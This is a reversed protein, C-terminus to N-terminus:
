IHILSLDDDISNGRMEGPNIWMRGALDPHSYDVGTDVVAVVVASTSPKAMAWAGLFKVDAGSTGSSGNVGQGTNQLGWLSSFRPDSPPLSGAIWRLYNPEASEVSPDLMLEATLEMTTKNKGRVLGSHKHRRGSLFAFRRRFSLSRVGLVKTATALDVNKRFTVIVDGEVYDTKKHASAAGSAAIAMVMSSFVFLVTKRLNAM